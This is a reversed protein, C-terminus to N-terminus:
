VQIRAQISTAEAATEQLEFQEASIQIQKFDSDSLDGASFRSQGIDAEHKMFRASESLVQENYAALLAAVYAKTVGQDLTRKADYFRAKAGKIGARAAAQRAHRKGGIEILQSVAF